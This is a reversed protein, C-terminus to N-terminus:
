SEKIFEEITEFLQDPQEVHIMHGVDKFIRLTSSPLNKNLFESCYLPTSLDENGAILLMETEISRIQDRLDFSRLASLQGLYGEIKQPFANTMMEEIKGKVQKSNSLFQNSYLWPLVSEIILEFPVNAQLLKAVTEATMVKAYPLQAFPTILIGKKIKEPYQLAFAQIIATGMSSGIMYAQSIGLHDMLQATDETMTEIKYPPPPADSQGAGRNDFILTQYHLSFRNSYHRWTELHTSFGSLFIIPQGIGHLEYYLNIGNVKAFPM